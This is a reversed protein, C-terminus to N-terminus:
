FHIKLLAGSVGPRKPCMRVNESQIDSSRSSKDQYSECPPCKLVFNQKNRTYVGRQFFIKKKLAINDLHNSSLITVTTVFQTSALFVDSLKWIETDQGKHLLSCMSLFTLNGPPNGTKGKVSSDALHYESLKHNESLSSFNCTETCILSTALDQM